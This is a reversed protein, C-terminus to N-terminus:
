ENLKKKYFKSNNTFLMVLITLHLSLNLLAYHLNKYNFFYNFLFTYQHHFSSILLFSIILITYLLNIKQEKFIYLFTILIVPYSLVTLRAINGGTFAPGGLIPQLWICLGLVILLLIKVNLLKKYTKFNFSFFFFFIVLFINSNFFLLVFYANDLLSYKLNFLGFISDAYIKTSSTNFNKQAIISLLIFILTNVLIGYFYINMKIKKKSFFNFIIISLFFLNLLLTTQRTVSCLILGIYFFRENKKIIHATILLLGYMFIWDNILLPSVLSPRFTYPNFILASIVILTFNKSGGAYIIIKNFLYIILLHFLINLIVIPFYYEIQFFNIIIGIFYPILFRYGQAVNVNGPFDPAAEIIKIYQLQDFFGIITLNEQSIFYKNSVLLIFYCFFSFKLLYSLDNKKIM